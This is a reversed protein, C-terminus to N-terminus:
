RAHRAKSRRARLLHRGWWVALFLGAGVTLLLGVGSVATSRVSYTGESLVVKGDLSSVVIRIPTDGPSRSHVRVPVVTRDSDLLVELQGAKVTLRDSASTIQVLVRMPVDSDSSIVLPFQADRAGLTVRDSGPIRVSAFRAEVTQRVEDVLNRRARDDLDAAVSLSLREGLRGALDPRDPIMSAYSDVLARVTRLEEPFSGAPRRRPAALDFRDPESMSSRMLQSVTAPQVVDGSVALLSLFADIEAVDEVTEPAPVSVVQPSGGGITSRAVVEALLRHAALIPDDNGGTALDSDAVLLRTGVETGEVRAPLDPVADDFASPPVLLNGIGLEALAEISRPDLRHTLRWTDGVPPELVDALERFGLTHQAGLEDGLGRAVLEAPDVDVFPAGLLERDDGALVARFRDVVTPSGDQEPDSTTSSATDDAGGGAASTVALRRAVAPPVVFSAPVESHDAFLDILTEIENLEVEDLPADAPGGTSVRGTDTDDAVVQPVLAVMPAPDPGRVLFTVLTAVTENAADRLRIRVPYAGPKSLRKAWGGGPSVQGPPYVNISFGTQVPGTGAPDPLDVVPFTADSNRLDGDLADELLEPEDVVPYIDIALDSGEPAGDVELFVTFDGDPAVVADQQVVRITVEDRPGTPSASPAPAAGAISPVLALAGVAASVLRHFRRRTTARGNV